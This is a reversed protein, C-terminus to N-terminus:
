RGKSGAAVRQGIRAAGRWAMTVLLAGFVAVALPEALAHGVGGHVSSALAIVVLSMGAFAALMWLQGIWLDRWADGGPNPQASHRSRHTNEGNM